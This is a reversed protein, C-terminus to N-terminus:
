NKLIPNNPDLNKAQNWLDEAEEDELLIKKLISLNILADRSSPQKEIINEWYLIETRIESETKESKLYQDPHSPFYSSNNQTEENNIKEKIIYFFM